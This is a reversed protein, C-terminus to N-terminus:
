RCWTGGNRRQALDFHFHDAHDADTGPGLVTKFPGCAAKRIRTLFKQELSDSDHAQVVIEREDALGIAAWDLANGTSHESMRSQGHRTRCVHASSQRLSRVETGFTERAAPQVEDRIFRASAAATACNMLAPPDLDVDSGLGTVTVPDTIACAGDDPASEEAVFDVGLRALDVVCQSQGGPPLAAEVAAPPEAPDEDAAADDVPRAQPVAVTEPLDAPQPSGDESTVDDPPADSNEADEPDSAAEPEPAKGTRFEPAEVTDPLEPVADQATAHVAPALSLVLALLLIRHAM